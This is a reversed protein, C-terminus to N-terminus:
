NIVNIPKGAQFAAINQAATAMLRRRASTTAWAIHPTILCNPAKLLPNTPEIPEVSIV